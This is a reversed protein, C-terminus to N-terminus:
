LLTVIEDGTILAISERYPLPTFNVLIGNVESLNTVRLTEDNVPRTIMFKAHRRSISTDNGNFFNPRGIEAGERAQIQLIQPQSSANVAELHSSVIDM